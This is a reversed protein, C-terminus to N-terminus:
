TLLGVVSAVTLHLHVKAATERRLCRLLRQLDPDAYGRSGRGPLYIPRVKDVAMRVDRASVPDVASEKKHRCAHRDSIKRRDLLRADQPLTGPGHEAMCPRPDRKAGLLPTAAACPCSQNQNSVGGM